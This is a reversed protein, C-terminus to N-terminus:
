ELKKHIKKEVKELVTEKKTAPLNSLIFQGVAKNTPCIAFEDFKIAAASIITIIENKDNLIPSGSSGPAAPISYITKDAVQGSYYGDFVPVALSTGLGYPSAMNYVKTHLKPDGNQMRLGPGLYKDAALLCLDNDSDIAIIKGKSTRGFGTKMDIDYSVRIETDDPLQFGPNPAPPMCVHGATLVYSEKTGTKIIVGSAVSGFNGIGQTVCIEEANCIKAHLSFRQQTMVFSKIPFLNNDKRIVEGTTTKIIKSHPNLSGLCGLCGGITLTLVLTLFLLTAVRSGHKM